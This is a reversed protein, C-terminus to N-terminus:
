RASATREREKKEFCAACSYQVQHRTRLREYDGDLAVRRVSDVVQGCFDCAVGEPTAPDPALAPENADPENTMAGSDLGVEALRM